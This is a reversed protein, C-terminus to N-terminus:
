IRMVMFMYVMYDLKITKLIILKLKVSGMLDIVYEGVEVFTKMLYGVGEKNVEITDFTNIRPIKTKSDISNIKITIQNKLNSNNCNLFLLSVISILVIKM